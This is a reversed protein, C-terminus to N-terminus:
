KVSTRPDGARRKILPTDSDNSRGTQVTAMVARELHIWVVKITNDRTIYLSVVQNHRVHSGAKVTGAELPVPVHNEGNVTQTFQYRIADDTTQSIEMVGIVGDAGLRIRWFGDTLNGAQKFFIANIGGEKEGDSRTARMGNAHQRVKKFFGTNWGSSDAKDPWVGLNDLRGSGQPNGKFQTM